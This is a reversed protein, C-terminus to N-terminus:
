MYSLMMSACTDKRLSVLRVLGDCEIHVFRRSICTGGGSRCNIVRTKCNNGDVMLDLLRASNRDKWCGGKRLRIVIMYDEKTPGGQLGLQSTCECGQADFGCHSTSELFDFCDQPHRLRNGAGDLHRSNHTLLLIGM